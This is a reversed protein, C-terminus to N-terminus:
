STSRIRNEVKVNSFEFTQIYAARFSLGSYIGKSLTLSIKIM